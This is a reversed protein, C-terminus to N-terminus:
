QEAEDLYVEFDGYGIASYLVEEAEDQYTSAATAPATAYGAMLGMALGALTAGAPWRAGNPFLLSRLWGPSGGATARPAAPAESLVHGALREPMPPVPDAALMMDLARAEALASAFREPNAALRAEAAAREAEPWGGPEAGYTEILFLLRDETMVATSM